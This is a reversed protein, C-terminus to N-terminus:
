SVPQRTELRALVPKTLRHIGVDGRDAIPGTLELNPDPRLGDCRGCSDVDAM